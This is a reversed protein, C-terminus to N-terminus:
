REQASVLKCCDSETLPLVGLVKDLVVVYCDRAVGPTQPSCLRRPQMHICASVIYGTFVKSGRTGFPTQETIRRGDEEALFVPKGDVVVGLMKEGSIGYGLTEPTWEAVFFVAQQSASHPQIRLPTNVTLRTEWRWITIGIAILVVAGLLLGWVRTLSVFGRRACIIQCM